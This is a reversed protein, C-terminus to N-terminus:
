GMEVKEATKAKKKDCYSGGGRLAGVIEAMQNIIRIAILLGYRSILWAWLQQHSTLLM